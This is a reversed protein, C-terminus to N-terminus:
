PNPADTMDEVLTTIHYLMTSLTHANEGPKMGVIGYMCSIYYTLVEVLRGRLAKCGLDGMSVRIQSLYQLGIGTTVGAQKQM